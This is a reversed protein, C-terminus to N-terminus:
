SKILYQKQASVNKQVNVEISLVERYERLNQLLFLCTDFGTVKRYCHRAENGDKQYTTEFSLQKPIYFLPYHSVM